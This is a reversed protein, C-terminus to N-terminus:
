KNKDIIQWIKDLIEPEIEGEYTNLQAPLKPTWRWKFLCFIPWVSFHTQLKDNEYIARYHIADYSDVYGIIWKLKKPEKM